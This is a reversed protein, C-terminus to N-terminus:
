VLMKYEIYMFGEVICGFQSRQLQPEVIFHFLCFDFSGPRAWAAMLFVNLAFSFKEHVLQFVSVYPGNVHFMIKTNRRTTCCWTVLNPDIRVTEFVTTCIVGESL